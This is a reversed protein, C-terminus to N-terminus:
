GFDRHVQLPFNKLFAEIFCGFQIFVFSLYNKETVVQGILLRDSLLRACHEEVAPCRGPVPGQCWNYRAALSEGQISLYNLHLKINTLM